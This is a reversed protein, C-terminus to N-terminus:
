VPCRGIRKQQILETARESTRDFQALWAALSEEVNVIFTQPLPQVSRLDPQRWAGGERRLRRKGRRRQARDQLSVRRSSRRSGSWAHPIVIRGASLNVVFIRAHHPDIM